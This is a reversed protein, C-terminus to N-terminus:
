TTFSMLSDTKYMKMENIITDPNSRKTNKTGGSIPLSTSRIISPRNIRELKM